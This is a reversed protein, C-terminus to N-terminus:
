KNNVSFSKAKAIWRYFDAIESASIVERGSFRVSEGPLLDDATVRMGVAYKGTGVMALVPLSCGRCSLQMFCYSEVEGLFRIDDPLYDGECSPCRYFERLSKILEQLHNSGV